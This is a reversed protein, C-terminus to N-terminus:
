LVKIDPRKLIIEAVKASDKAAYHLATDRDMGDAWNVDLEPKDLIMRAVDEMESPIAAYMLATMNNNNVRNVDIDPRALLAKALRKNGRFIAWILVPSRRLIVFYSSSLARHVPTPSRIM